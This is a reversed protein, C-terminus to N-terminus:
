MYCHNYSLFLLKKKGKNKGLNEDIFFFKFMYNALFYLFYNWLLINISKTKAMNIYLLICLSCTCQQLSYIETIFVFSIKFWIWRWNKYFSSFVLFNVKQLNFTLNFKSANSNEILWMKAWKKEKKLTALYLM